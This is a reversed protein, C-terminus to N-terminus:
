LIQTAEELNLLLQQALRKHGVINLDEPPDLIRYAFFEKKRVFDQNKLIRLVEFVVAGTTRRRHHLLVVVDLVELWHQGYLKGEDSADRSLM